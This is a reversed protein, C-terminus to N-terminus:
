LKSTCPDPYKVLKKPIPDEKFTAPLTPMPCDKVTELLATISERCTVLDILPAENPIEPLECNVPANLTSPAVVNCPNVAVVILEVENVVVPLTATPEDKVTVEPALKEEKKCTVPLVSKFVKVTLPAVSKLPAKVAVVMLAVEKVVEPFTPTPPDIVPKPANFPSFTVPNVFIALKFAVLVWILPVSSTVPAVVREVKFVEPLVATPPESVVVEAPTKEEDNCAKPLVSKFVKVTLLVEKNLPANVTFPAVVMLLVKVVVPLTATPDDRVTVEPALRDEERKTEPFVSRFVRVTFPAM